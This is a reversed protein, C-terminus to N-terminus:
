RQAVSINLRLTCAAALLMAICSGGLIWTIGMIPAGSQEESVLGFVMTGCLMALVQPLAISVNNIGIIAGTSSDHYEEELEHQLERQRITKLSTLTYPIWNM